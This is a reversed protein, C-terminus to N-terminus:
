NPSRNLSCELAGKFLLIGSPFDASLRHHLDLPATVGSFRYLLPPVCYVLQPCHFSIFFSFDNDITNKKQEDVINVELIIASIIYFYESNEPHTFLQLLNTELRDQYVM